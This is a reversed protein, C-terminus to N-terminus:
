ASRKREPQRNKREQPDLGGFVGFRCDTELAYELCEDKVPCTLCILKARRTNRVDRRPAFFLTDDPGTPRCAAQVM